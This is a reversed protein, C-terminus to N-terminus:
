GRARQALTEVISGNHGELMEPGAFLLGKASCVPCGLVLVYGYGAVTQYGLLGGVKIEDVSSSMTCELCAIAGHDIMFGLSNYGLADLEAVAETLTQSPAIRTDAM